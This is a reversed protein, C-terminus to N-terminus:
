TRTQPSPALATARNNNSLHGDLNPNPCPNHDHNPDHHPSCAGCAADSHESHGRKPCLAEQAKRSECHMVPM